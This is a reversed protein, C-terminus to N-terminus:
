SERPDDEIAHAQDLEEPVVPRLIAWAFFAAAVGLLVVGYIGLLAGVINRIDFLRFRSRPTHPDSMPAGHNLRLVSEAALTSSTM